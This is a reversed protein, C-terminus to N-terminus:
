IPRNKCLGDLINISNLYDRTRLEKIVDNLKPHSNRVDYNLGKNWSEAINSTTPIDTLIRTHTTWNKVSFLPKNITGIYTKDFYNLFEGIKDYKFEEIILIKLKKFKNIVNEPKEYSLSLLMKLYRNFKNNNNYNIALGFQQIKKYFAQGMHFNCFYINSAPFIEVIAKYAAFEFDLIINVPFKGNLIRSMESFMQYYCIYSKSKLFVYSVPYFKSLIKVHFVYIQKYQKPSSFFTGDCILTQSNKLHQKNNENMLILMENDNQKLNDCIHIFKNNDITSYYEYAIGNHDIQINENNKREKRVIDKLYKQSQIKFNENVNAESIVKAVVEKTSLCTNLAINKVKSIIKTTQRLILGNNIHTLHKGRIEVFEEDIVKLRAYCHRSTCRYNGERGKLKYYTYGDAIIGDTNKKTVYFEYKIKM